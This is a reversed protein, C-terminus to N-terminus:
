YYSETDRQLSGIELKSGYWVWTLIITFISVYKIYCATSSEIFYSPGTQMKACKVYYPCNVWM